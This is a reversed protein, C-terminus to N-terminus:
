LIIRSFSAKLKVNQVVFKANSKINYLLICANYVM